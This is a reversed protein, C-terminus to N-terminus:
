FCAFPYDRQQIQLSLFIDFLHGFSIISLPNIFHVARFAVAYNHYFDSFVNLLTSFHKLLKFIIVILHEPAPHNFFVVSFSLSICINSGCKKFLNTIKICFLLKSYVTEM